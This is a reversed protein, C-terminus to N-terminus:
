RTLVVTPREWRVSLESVVGYLGLVTAVVLGLVPALGSLVLALGFLTAGRWTRGQLWTLVGGVARSRAFMGALLAAAIALLGHIGTPGLYAIRPTDASVVGEAAAIGSVLLALDAEAPETATLGDNPLASPRGPAADLEGNLLHQLSLALQPTGATAKTPPTGAGGADGSAVPEVLRLLRDLAARRATRLAAGQPPWFILDGRALFLEDGAPRQPLDWWGGFRSTGQLASWRVRVLRVARNSPRPPLVINGGAERPAPQGDVRIEIRESPHPWPEEM